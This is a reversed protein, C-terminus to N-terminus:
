KKAGYNFKVQILYRMRCQSTEYVIYEHYLLASAGSLGATDVMRGMPYVVGDVTVAGAPDPEMKGVGMTSHSPPEPKDMYKAATFKKMDGLAVECLLLFGVNNAPNTHCYNASKTAVDAFYLGKGFMYGTVPAEPPAIRMGQSLIGMFNTTRSGHWLMMKNHLGGFAHEYRASEGERSVRFINQVSLVYATHTKGHTNAVFDVLRTYEPTAHPVEEMACKLSAYTSDLPHKGTRKVEKLLGSAVEIDSLTELMDMKRKLQDTDRIVPPVSMGTDHPVLTYFMSSEEALKSGNPKAKSLEHEIAKLHTFAEKIQKKSIQGLPLKKSDYEFDKMTREWDAKNAIMKMVSQVSAPLSSPALTDLSAMEDEVAAAAAASGSVVIDMLHYKGAHKVFPTTNDAVSTWDNKTKDRFKTCYFSKAGDVNMFTDLASQGTVGVRGWRTFVYYTKLSATDSELLQIIYFKNNNAGINTQNLTCQWLISGARYIHAKGTLGCHEDVHGPKPPGSNGNDAGGDGASMPKASSSSTGAAGGDTVKSKKAPPEDDEDDESAATATKFNADIASALSFGGTRSIKRSKKSSLNLQEMSHFNFEYEWSGMKFQCKFGKTVLAAKQYEQELKTATPVDYPKEAGADDTWTWVAPASPPPPPPAMPDAAATAAASASSAAAVLAPGIRRINRVKKSEMNCQTMADFDFTYKWGSPMAATATGAGEAKGYLDEVIKSSAADFPVFASAAGEFEWTVSKKPPM